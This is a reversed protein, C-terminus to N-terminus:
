GQGVLKDIVETVILWRGGHTKKKIVGDTALRDRLQKVGDNTLGFDKRVEDKKFFEKDRLYKLVKMYTDDIKPKEETSTAPETTEAVTAEAEVITEAPEEPQQTETVPAEPLTIGVSKLTERTAICKRGKFKAPPGLVGIQELDKLIQNTQVKTFKGSPLAKQLAKQLSDVGWPEDEGGAVVTAIIKLMEESIEPTKTAPPPASKPREHTEPATVTQLGEIDAPDILESSGAPLFTIVVDGNDRNITVCGEDIYTIEFAELHTIDLPSIIDSPDTYVWKDEQLQANWGISVKLGDPGGQINSIQSRWFVPPSPGVRRVVQGGVFRDSTLAKILELVRKQQRSQMDLKSKSGAVLIGAVILLALLVLCLTGLDM